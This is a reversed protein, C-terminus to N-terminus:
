PAVRNNGLIYFRWAGTCTLDATTITGGSILNLYCTKGPKVVNVATSTPVVQSSIFQDVTTPVSTGVTSAATILTSQGTPIASVLATTVAGASSAAIFGAQGAAAAVATMATTSILPTVSGTGGGLALTTPTAATALTWGLSATAKDTGAPFSGVTVLEWIVRTPIFTGAQQSFLPISMTKVAAGLSFATEAACTVLAVAKLSEFTPANSETFYETVTATTLGSSATYSSVTNVNAM